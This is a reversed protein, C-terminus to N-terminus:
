SLENIFTFDNKFGQFDNFLTRGTSGKKSLFDYVGRPSQASHLPQALATSVDIDYITIPPTDFLINKERAFYCLFTIFDYNASGTGKNDYLLFCGKQQNLNYSNHHQLADSDTLFAVKAEFGDFCFSKSYDSYNYSFNTESLTIEKLSLNKMLEKYNIKYVTVFYKESFDSRISINNAYSTIFSLKLNAFAFYLAVLPDFSFDILATPVAYHQLFCIRSLLNKNALDNEKVWQYDGFYHEFLNEFIQSLDIDFSRNPHIRNYSSILKHRIVKNDDLTNSVGRYIYNRENCENEIEENYQKWTYKKRVFLTNM